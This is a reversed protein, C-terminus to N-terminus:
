CAVWSREPEVLLRSLIKALMTSLNLKRLLGFAPLQHSRETHSTVPALTGDHSEQSGPHERRDGHEDQSSEVDEENEVQLM